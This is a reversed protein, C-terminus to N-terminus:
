FEQQNILQVEPELKIATKEYCDKQIHKALTLLESGSAKGHNVLVLAHKPYVGVRGISRGKWGIKEILYAASVKKNRSDHDSYVPLDPYIQLLKQVQQESIIPNKFFSGANGIETIAPLKSARMNLINQRLTQPDIQSNLKNLAKYRLLPTFKKELFLEVAYIFIKGKGKRHLISSRYRWDLQEPYYNCYQQKDFDFAYIRSVVDRMERGYAGVNQLAAAGITSPIGSLNEIGFWNQELCYCILEDLLIGSGVRLNICHENEAIIKLGGIENKIILGHFDQCFILNAGIGLFLYSLKEQALWNALEPLQTKERVTFLMSGKQVTQFTHLKELEIEYSLSNRIPM